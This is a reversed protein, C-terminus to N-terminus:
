SSLHSAVFPVTPYSVNPYIPYSLPSVTALLSLIPYIPSSISLPTALCPLIPSSISLRAALCPLISPSISLPTALFPLPYYVFHLPTHGFLTPYYVFHLPTHGFLTPYSMSVLHLLTHGCRDNEVFTVAAKLSRSSAFMLARIGSSFRCHCAYYNGGYAAFCKLINYSM